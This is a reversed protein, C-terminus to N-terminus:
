AERPPCLHQKQGISQYLEPRREQYLWGQHFGCADLEDGGLESWVLGEEDIDNLVLDAGKAAYAIAMKHGFGSGAGTILAVKGTLFKDESM